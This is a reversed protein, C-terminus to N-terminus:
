LLNKNKLKEILKNKSAEIDFNDLLSEAKEKNELGILAERLLEAEQLIKVQEKDMFQGSVDSDDRGTLVNLWMDDISNKDDVM